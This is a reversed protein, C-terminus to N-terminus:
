GAEKHETINLNSAENTGCVPCFMVSDLYNPVYSDIEIRIDARCGACCVSFIRMGSFVRWTM